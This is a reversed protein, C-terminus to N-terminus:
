DIFVKPVVSMGPALLMEEPIPGDFVIKVPIRQVVKVYNGTANEPPLLSFRAGTGRQFSDIKGTLPMGPYADVRISVPQGPKMHEIQREKFNAVVWVDNEVLAMLAQGPQVYNGREVSRRTIRGDAPAVVRTYSLNLQAQKLEAERQALDARFSELEAGSLAVKQPASQAENVAAGAVALQSEAQRLMERSGKCAAEAEKVAAEAARIRRKAAELQAQANIDAATAQDLQQPTVTKEDLSKLRQLDARARNAEGEAAKALERQQELGAKASALQAESQQIKNKAVAIQADQADHAAVAAELSSSTAVKTLDVQLGAGDLRAKAFDYAAQARAVQAAYDAPDIICIIDDKHVAQNDTVSLEVVPGAVRPAIQVIRGEVFANDTKEYFLSQWYYWGGALAACVGVIMLIRFPRKNKGQVPADDLPQGETQDQTM